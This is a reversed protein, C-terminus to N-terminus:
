CLLIQHGGLKKKFRSWAYCENRGNNFFCKGVFFVPNLKGWVLSKKLNKQVRRKPLVELVVKRIKDTLPTGGGKRIKKGAFFSNRIQPTGGEGGKRIKGRFNTKYLNVM